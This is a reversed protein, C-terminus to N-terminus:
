AARGLRAIADSMEDEAVGLYHETSALSAHRMLKQVVKINVGERLLTTGYTARLRHFSGDCGISELVESARRSLWKSTIHGEAGYSPFWYGSRPMTQALAWLDPHTPLLEVKGGKGLVRIRTRSIDEGRFKAAEHARLGARLGLLACARENGRLVLLLREEDDVDLPHPRVGPKPNPRLLTSPDDLRRGTEVMFTMVSRVSSLYARRTWGDFRALWSSLEGATVTEPNIQTGLRAIFSTRQKITNASLDHALLWESYPEILHPTMCVLRLATM